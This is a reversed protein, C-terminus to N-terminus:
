LSVGIFSCSVSSAGTKWLGVLMVEFSICGGIGVALIGIVFDRMRAADTWIIKAALSDRSKMVGSIVLLVSSHVPRATRCARECNALSISTHSETEELKLGNYFFRDRKVPYKIERFRQISFKSSIETIM